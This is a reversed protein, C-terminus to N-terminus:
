GSFEVTYFVTVRVRETSPIDNPDTADLQLFAGTSGNQVISTVDRTVVNLAITRRTTQFQRTGIHTGSASAGLYVDAGGLYPFVKTTAAGTGSLRELRVSDVRARVVESRSVGNQRFLNTLEDAEASRVEVVGNPDTDDSSYSFTYEVTPPVPSTANLVITEGGGGTDCAAVLGVLLGLSLVSVVRSVTM